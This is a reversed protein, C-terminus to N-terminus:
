HITNGATQARAKTKFTKAAATYGGETGDFFHRAQNTQRIPIL